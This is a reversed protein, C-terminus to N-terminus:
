AFARRRKEVPGHRRRTVLSVGLLGAGLMSAFGPEPVESMGMPGECEPDVPFDAFGDSDDDLGNDCVYMSGRENGDSPDTCGPDALDVLGDNDDDFGNDCDLESDQEDDDTPSSCGPDEPYDALGDGDVDIGDDCDPQGITALIDSRYAYLDVILGVNGYLSTSAPQGSFPGRAFLIGVLEAGLFAAGGSDGNVVDAEQVFPPLPGLDDFTTWFSETNLDFEGIHSVVNTGWRISRGAGWLYGDVGMWTTAAGRNRGNGILTVGDGIQRPTSAIPLAPLPPRETLKYAVLDALAGSGNAFRVLSGVVPQYTTTGFTVAREGVHNATLVWGNGVYVASLNTVTAGVNDFGPDPSPPTVNQTGDGPDVIVADASPAFVLPLPALLLGLLVAAIRARLQRAGRSGSPPPQDIVRAPHHSVPRLDTKPTPPQLTGHPIGGLAGSTM